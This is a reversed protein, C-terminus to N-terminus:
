GARSLADATIQRAFPITMRFGYARLASPHPVQKKKREEEANYGDEFYAAAIAGVRGASFDGSCRPIRLFYLMVEFHVALRVLLTLIM